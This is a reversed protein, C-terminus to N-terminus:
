SVLNIAKAMRNRRKVGLQFPWVVANGFGTTGQVWRVDGGAGELKSVWTPETISGRIMCLDEPQFHFWDGSYVDPMASVGQGNWTLGDLNPVGGAGMGKEGMFRVQNQLLEYFNRMQHASTVVKSDYTGDEQYVREQLDLALSLSFATTATDVYSQWYENGATAPNIGGLTGTGILNELGNLEPNPATASNPNTIYVFHTGATTSISTGVTITPTAALKSVATVTTGGVLSDTDTTAGIDVLMNPKLHGRVLADYGHYATTASSPRLSVTISAGGTDCEAIISDGNRAVQRSCQRSMGDVNGKMELDKASILAQDSSGTQNLAAMELGMQMYHYVMTYTAQATPTATAANLSGGAAAVSTYGQPNDSQIGVQAQLGIIAVDPADRVMKLVPNRNYFQTVIRPPTWVDMMVSSLGAITTVQAM